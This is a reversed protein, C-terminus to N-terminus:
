NEIGLYTDIYVSIKNEVDAYQTETWNGHGGDYVTYQHAIGATELNNKLTIGNTLPVLKDINGYFLVTPSTNANLQLAPSLAVALDTGAPYASEDTLATLYLDFNPNEQYFPDTFDCPGVIDCVFKVQNDTDYVSDYQLSIHAGASLGILGFEPLIHLTESQSTVQNIVADLDLFQNPFAPYSLTALKYNMNVIAHNPNNVQMLTIIENVDAKDGEIWGGGHVLILVKTKEDTRGEPLYLDYVQQPDAGYPVDLQITAVLPDTTTDDDIVEEEIVTDDSDCSIFSVNLFLGITLIYLIKKM